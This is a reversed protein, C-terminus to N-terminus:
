PVDGVNTWVITITGNVTLDEANDSRDADPVAMNLKAVIAATHGDFLGGSTAVGSAQKTGGVLTYATSPIINAETSTLTADDAANVTGIAAVVAATDSIEAGGVNNVTLDMVAGLINILGAPFNYIDTHGFGVGSSAINVKVNTLTLVTKHIASRSETAENGTAVADGNGALSPGGNFIAEQVAIMEATMQDWDEFDPAKDDLRSDRDPTQGAWVEDPFYAQNLSM